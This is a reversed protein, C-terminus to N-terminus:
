AGDLSRDPIEGFAFGLYGPHLSACDPFDAVLRCCATHSLEQIGSREMWAVTQYKASRLALTARIFRLRLGPFRSVVFLL